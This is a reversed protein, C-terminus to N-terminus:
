KKEIVWSTGDVALESDPFVSRAEDLLPNLDEYRSSFHGLLLKGANAKLAFKAAQAATSHGTKEARAAAEELFTSEHYLLDVNEVMPAREPLYMTDAMYAYSRAERMPLVYDRYYFVRGDKLEVDMGKKLEALTWLPIDSEELKEKDINYETIKERLLYGTAPIRHALPITLVELHKNEYVIKHETCDVNHFTLPYTLQIGSIDLFGNIFTGLGEPAYIELEKERNNLSLSTLLGPLGFIHDGHLHSIFIADLAFPSLKYEQLRFQCGEGCDILYNYKGYRVYQASPFRGKFPLASNSGLIHVIFDSSM